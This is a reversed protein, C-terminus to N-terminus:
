LTVMSVHYFAPKEVHKLYAQCAHYIITAM